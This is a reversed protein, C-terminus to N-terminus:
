EDREDDRSEPEEPRQRGHQEARLALAHAAIRRTIPSKEALALRDMVDVLAVAEASSREMRTVLYAIVKPEVALQRDALLKMIMQSLHIDDTLSLQFSVARRARSKLDDTRYPWDAIPRSATMLVARRDRMAQNVLHFLAAEDYNGEDVHELVLPHNGPHEVAAHVTAPDIFRAGSRRAFIRALHSKGTKPPGEILALPEPWDPYALIHAYAVRNGEGLIFDDEAHSSEHDFELILQGTKGAGRDPDVM